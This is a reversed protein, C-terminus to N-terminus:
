CSPPASGALARLEFLIRRGREIAESLREPTANLQGIVEEVLTEEPVTRYLPNGTV